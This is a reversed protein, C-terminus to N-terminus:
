CPFAWMTWGHFFQKIPDFQFSHYLTSALYLFVLSGGYIAVGAVQWGDGYYRAIVVMLILGVVSM